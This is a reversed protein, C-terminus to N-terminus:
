LVGFAKLIEYAIVSHGLTTPHISDGSLLKDTEGDIIRNTFATELSIYWDAYERALKREIITFKDLEDHFQVRDQCTFLVYPEIMMIKTAPLAKKIGALVTRYNEEFQEVSTPDNSDYKRWADNVGILITVYDPKLAIVDNELREVLDKTRDGSVGRNLFTVSNGPFLDDYLKKVANPYGTGLNSDDTRSRGADTVSDGYFLVVSGDKFVRKMIAEKLM